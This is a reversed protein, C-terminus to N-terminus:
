CSHHRTCSTRSALSACSTPLAGSQLPRMLCCRMPAARAGSPKLRAPQGELKAFWVAEASYKNSSLDLTAKLQLKQVKSFLRQHEASLRPLQQLWQPKGTAADSLLKRSRERSIDLAAAAGMDLHTFRLGGLLQEPLEAPRQGELLFALDVVMSTTVGRISQVIFGATKCTTVDIDVEIYRDTMHYTTELKRGVIFPTTGVTRKVLWSGVEIHPIMKLISSREADAGHIFVGDNAQSRQQARMWQCLLVAAAGAQMMAAMAAAAAALAAGTLWATMVTPSAASSGGGDNSSTSGLQLDQWHSSSGFTMVLNLVSDAAPVMMNFVFCSAARCRRVSPLFRAVHLVAAPTTVLDVALLCYAREGAPVKGRDTLYHPGRVQFLSPKGPAHLESWVAPDCFGTLQQGREDLGVLQGFLSGADGGIAAAATSAGSGSSGSFGAESSARGARPVEADAASAGGAAPLSVSQRRHCNTTSSSSGLLGAASGWSALSRLSQLMGVNVAAATANHHPQGQAAAAAAPTSDLAESAAEEILAFPYSTFRQQEVEDKILTVPTLLQGMLQDVLGLGLARCYLWSAPGRQTLWGGLDVKLICTVLSEPSADDEFGDLGSITYGGAVDLLVPRWLRAGLGCSSGSSSGRSSSSGLWTNFQSCAQVVATPWWQHGQHRLQQQQQQQVVAHRPACLSSCLGSGLPPLLQLHLVQANGDSSLVDAAAAPGLITTMSSRHTLAALCQQPTGRVTSSVMLEGGVFEHGGSVNQHYYVAIGNSHKYPIWRKSMPHPVEAADLPNVAANRDLSADTTAAAVAAM